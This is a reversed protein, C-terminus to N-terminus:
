GLVLKILTLVTSVMFIVVIVQLGLLERKLDRITNNLTVLVSDLGSVQGMSVHIPNPAVENM